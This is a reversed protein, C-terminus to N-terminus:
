VTRIKAKLEEFSKYLESEYGNGYIIHNLQKDCILEILISRENNTLGSKITEYKHKYKEAEKKYVDCKSCTM